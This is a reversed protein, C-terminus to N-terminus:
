KAVKADDPVAVREVDADFVRVGKFKTLNEAVFKKHAASDAYAHFAAHDTFVMLAVVDFERDNLGSKIEDCLTGASFFVLGPHQSLHEKCAAVLQQRAEDSPEKLSFYVSHSLLASNKGASNAAAAAGWAYSLCVLVSLVSLAAITKKM